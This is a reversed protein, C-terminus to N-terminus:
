KGVTSLPIVAFAGGGSSQWNVSLFLQISSLAPMLVNRKRLNKQKWSVPNVAVMNTDWANASVRLNDYSAERKACTGYVHRYKSPRVFGFRSM